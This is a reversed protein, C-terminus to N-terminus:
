KILMMKRTEIFSGAQIRYIYVGSALRSGDFTVSHYGPLQQQEDVLLAVRQGLVNFVEMRVDSTEPLAYRITSTPNFPNPYNQKLDFSEPLDAYGTSTPVGETVLVRFRSPAADAKMVPTGDSQLEERSAIGKQMGAEELTFHYSEGPDMATREGTQLDLLELTLNDPLDTAAKWEWTITAEGSLPASAQMGGASLPISHSVEEPRPLSHVLVANDEKETFLWAFRDNMPTLYWADYRGFAEDYSTGFRIATAAQLDDAQLRLVLYDDAESTQSETDAEDSPAKTDQRSTGSTTDASSSATQQGNETHIQKAPPNFTAGVMADNNFDIVRADNTVTLEPSTEDAKVWFAQFPAIVSEGLVGEINTTNGGEESVLYGGTEADYLYLFNNLNTKTWASGADWDLAAGYPNGLLNWGDDGSGSESGSYTVPFTFGAPPLEPSNGAVEFPTTYDVANTQGNISKFESGYVFFGRGEPIENSAPPTFRADRSGSGTEDYLLVNASSAVATSDDAGPFGSTFMRGLLATPDSNQASAFRGNQIPSSLAYWQKPAELRRQYQIDGTVEGRTIAQGGSEVRLLANSEIRTRTFTSSSSRDLVLGGGSQVMLEGGPDDPAAGLTRDNILNLRANGQLKLLGDEAITLNAGGRVTLTASSSSPGTFETNLTASRGDCIVVQGSEPVTGTDTTTFDTCGQNTWNVADDWDGSAVKFFRADPDFGPREIGTAVSKVERLYPYSALNFLQWTPTTTETDIAEAIDWTATLGKTDTNAYTALSKMKFTSLGTGAGSRTTGSSETDWFSNEITGSGSGTLGGPPGGSSSTVTGAAWVRDLTGGEVRGAFGGTRLGSSGQVRIFAYSDEITGDEEVLGALGGVDSSADFPRSSLPSNGTDVFSLRVTGQRLHGVLGGTRDDGRIAFPRLGVNEIIAGPADVVGFLGVNDESQRNIHLGSIVHGGGSFGGRFPNEKTGVPRWGEPNVESDDGAFLTYNTDSSGLPNMLRYYQDTVVRMNHLHEWTEMQYPDELTGTGGAFPPEARLIVFTGDFKPHDGTGLTERNNAGINYVLPDIFIPNSAPEEIDLLYRVPSESDGLGGSFLRVTQNDNVIFEPTGQIRLVAGTIDGSDLADDPLLEIAAFNSGPDDNGATLTDTVVIDSGTTAIRIRDDAEIKGLRLRNEVTYGPNSRRFEFTDQTRLEYNDGSVGSVTGAVFNDEGQLETVGGSVTHLDGTLQLAGAGAEQTIADNADLELSFSGPGAVSFSSSADLSIAAGSRLRVSRNFPREFLLSGTLDDTTFTIDGGAIIETDRITIERVFQEENFHAGSDGSDLTLWREGDYVMGSTPSTGITLPHAALTLDVNEVVPPTGSPTAEYGRRAAEEPTLLRKSMGGTEFPGEQVAGELINDPDTFRTAYVASTPLRFVTLAYTGDGSTTATAEPFDGDVSVTRVEVGEQGTGGETVTGEITILDGLQFDFVPYGDFPIVVTRWPSGERTFDLGSMFTAANDGRMQITNRGSYAPDAPFPGSAPGSTLNQDWYVSSAFADSPSGSSGIIAGGRQEERHITFFNRTAAFSRTVNVGEGVSSGFFGGAGNGTLTSRVYADQLSVHDARGVLGGIGTTESSEEVRGDVEGIFAIRNGMAANIASGIIGGVPEREAVVTGQVLVNQIDGQEDSGTYEFSGALGGVLDNGHIQVNELRINRLAVNSGTMRGFFGVEDEDPRDITLNRIVYEQGNWSGSFTRRTGDSNTGIPVFNSVESFDLDAMQKFHFGMHNTLGSGPFVSQNILGVHVVTQVECPFRQTGRGVMVESGGCISRDYSATIETDQFITYTTELDFRGTGPGTSYGTFLNFKPDGESGPQAPESAALEIFVGVDFIFTKSESDNAQPDFELPEGPTGYTDEGLSAQDAKFTVSQQLPTNNSVQFTVRPLDVRGPENGAGPNNDRLYPYSRVLNEFDPDSGPDGLNPALIKWIPTGGSDSTGALLEKIDWDDKEAGEFGSLNKMIRNSLPAAGGGGASDNTRLATEDWYSAIVTGNSKGDETRRGVLGRVPAPDSTRFTQLGAYVRDITGFLVGVFHASSGSQAIVETLTYSNNVFGDEDIQGAFGGVRTSGQVDGQVYSQEITGSKLYGVLGGTDERGRVNANLMGLRSVTVDEGTFGDLAARDIVGFLGVQNEQARDIELDRIFFGDGDFFGTFPDDLTGIPQWGRSSSGVFEHYGDSADTISHNLVFSENLYYRVANLQNWDGIKYPAEPTGVGDAFPFAERLLVFKGELPLAPDLGSLDSDSDLEYRVIATGLRQVLAETGSLSGSYFLARGGSGTTVSRPADSNLFAPTLLINGGTRDGAAVDDGAILRIAEESNDDTSINDLLSLDGDITAVTITGTINNFSGLQLNGSYSIDVNVARNVLLRGNFENGPASLVVDNVTNGDLVANRNTVFRSGSEQILEPTRVLLGVNRHEGGVLVNEALVVRERAILDITVFGSGVGGARLESANLLLDRGADFTLGRNRNGVNVDISNEVRINNGATITIGADILSSELEDVNLVANEGVAYVTSRGGTSGPEIVINASSADSITLSRTRLELDLTEDDNPADVFAGTQRGLGDVSRAFIREVPIQRFALTYAGNADSTTIVSPVFPDVSLATVDVGELPEGLANFVVGNVTVLAGLEWALRPYDDNVDEQDTGEITLWDQEFDWHDTNTRGTQFETVVDGQMDETDIGRVNQRIGPLASTSFVPTKQQDYYIDRFTNSASLIHGVVGENAGAASTTLEGAAFLEEMVLPFVSTEGVLLGANNDAVVDAVAYSRTLSANESLRGVLGGVAVSGSVTGRYAVDRIVTNYAALGIIGGADGGASSVSGQVSINTITTVPDDEGSCDFCGASGILAGTQGSEETINNIVDVGIMRINRIEAGQVHGFLGFGTVGTGIPPQFNRILFDQGDYVGSFALPDQATDPSGRGIRKWLGMTIMDIDATQIYNLELFRPDYDGDDIDAIAELHALTSVQCPNEPSGDGPMGGPCNSADFVATVSKDGDMTLTAPSIRGELDGEWTDFFQEFGPVPTLTVTEAPISGEPPIFASRNPQRTVTGDGDINLDLTFVERRGPEEGEAPPLERLYPFSVFRDGEETVDLVKWVADDGTEGSLSIDWGAATFLEPTKVDGEFQPIAGLSFTQNSNSRAFFNGEFINNGTESALFGRNNPNSVGPYDVSGHSLSNIISADEISAAFAAFSEKPTVSEGESVPLRDIRGGTIANSISVGPLITGAIGGTTQNGQVVVGVSTRDVTTGSEISGILGGTQSSGRVVANDGTEVSILSIASNQTARGALAGTYRANDIFELNNDDALEVSIEFEVLRLNSVTAGELMGFLGSYNALTTADAEREIRVRNITQDNGDFTGTFPLVDRGIPTWGAEDNALDTGDDVQDAYGTSGTELSNNLRFHREPNYRVNFLHNWDVIQYPNGSTGDGGAYTISLVGSPTDGSLYPYSVETGTDIEWVDDTGNETEGVLDWGAREFLSRARIEWHKVAFLTSPQLTAEGDHFSGIINDADAIQGILGGVHDPETGTASVEGAAYTFQVQGGAANSGILGGVTETGSVETLTYSNRVLGDAANSGILGGVQTTGSVQGGEVSVEELTGSHHGVAAGTAVAGQIDPDILRIRSVTGGSLIEGFLGTNEVNRDITLAEIVFRGSGASTFTGAFDTIPFWGRAANALTEGDKVQTTYGETGPRLDNQLVFTSDPRFRVNFLETWNTIQYPDAESGVGGAYLDTILGPIPNQEPDGPDDYTFTTLYPYSIPDGSQIIWIDDSGNDTEGTFDWGGSLFDAIDRMQATSLATGPGGTQATTERDFFSDTVTANDVNLETLGGANGTGSVLGAAYSRIIATGSGQNVGVLGGVSGSTTTVDGTSYSDTIEAGANANEGGNFGVLGGIRIGTGEVSASSFSQSVTASSEQNAGILGGINTVGNVTGGIVGVGSVSGNNTGILIGTFSQGTIDADVLLLDKVVADPTTNAFLGINSTSSRDIRLGSITFGGGDFTGSFDAIPNWGASTTGVVSDYGDTGPGLDATLVYEGSTNTRIGDLETWNSITTPPDAFVQQGWGSWLMVLALVTLSRIATRAAASAASKVFRGVFVFQHRAADSPGKEPRILRGRAIRHHATM